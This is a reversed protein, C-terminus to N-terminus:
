MELHGLERGLVEYFRERAYKERWPYHGCDELLVSHFDKLTRELPKRVGEFPHPDHDGHIAVVPCRIEKGMRLLKGSRRLYSAENWVSRNVEHSFESTNETSPLLHFSDVGSILKGFKAFFYNKNKVSPDSMKASLHLYEEMKNESMRELRKQMITPAYSEEFPGSAVLILKKVYRPYRAAFMFALWAGWSHGVLSIPLKGPQKLIDRLESIQGDISMSTQLPELVGTASRNSLEMALEAVSGPAGPGGHIVAIDYPERGYRKYNPYM